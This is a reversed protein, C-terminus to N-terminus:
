LDNPRIAGRGGRRSMFWYDKTIGHNASLPEKTTVEILFRGSPRQTVVPAASPERESLSAVYSEVYKRQRPTMESVALLVTPHTLHRLVTWHIRETPPALRCWSGDDFCIKAEGGVDSYSMREVGAIRDRGIEWLVTDQGPDLDPFGLIVVRRDTVVCHTRYEAPRRGPDLQWPLTRALTGPAAWMVPFDGVENERDTPRGPGRRGGPGAGTGSGFAGLAAMVLAYLSGLGFLGVKRATIKAAPPEPAYSHGDPWGPLEHQIDEREAGRFWRMGSVTDDTGSAFVIADRALLTEGPAPQWTAM